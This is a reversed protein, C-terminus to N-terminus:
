RVMEEITTVLNTGTAVAAFLETSTEIILSTGVLIAHGNGNVVDYSSGVFVNAAGANTVVASFRGDVQELIRIADTGVTIQKTRVIGYHRNRDYFGPAVQVAM